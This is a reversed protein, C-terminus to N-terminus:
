GLYRVELRTEEVEGDKCAVRYAAADPSSSVVHALRRGVYHLVVDDDIGVGAAMKGQKLQSRYFRRRSPKQVNYHCCNGGPLLGLCEIRILKGPISATVGEDFWCMSGASSGALVIGRNWAQRLIRDLGWERWLALMSKPNGGCVYIGDHSLLFQEMHMPPRFLSLHSPRCDLQSFADYFRVIAALNEGGATPLFCVKPRKKGIQRVFYKELMLNRSYGGFEGGGCALIQKTM